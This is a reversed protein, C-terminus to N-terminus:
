NKFYTVQLISQTGLSIAKFKSAVEYTELTLTNGASLIHGDTSTPDAGDVRFRISAQECTIFVIIQGDTKLNAQTLGAPTSGVTIKEFAYPNTFTVIRAM